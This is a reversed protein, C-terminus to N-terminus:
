RGYARGIERCRIASIAPTMEAPRLDSGAPLNPAAREVPRDYRWAKVRTRSGWARLIVMGGIVVWNTWTTLFEDITMNIESSSRVKTVFSIWNCVNRPISADM